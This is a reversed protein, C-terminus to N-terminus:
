ISTVTTLSDPGGQPPAQWPAPADRFFALKQMKIPWWLRQMKNIILPQKNKTHQISHKKNSMSRTKKFNNARHM